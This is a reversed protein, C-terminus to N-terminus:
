EVKSIDVAVSQTTQLVVQDGVKVNELNQVEDSVNITSVKGDPGKLTATRNEVDIAEVTSTEEKIEVTVKRPKGDKSDVQVVRSEAVPPREADPSTVYVATSKLYTVRVKDGVKIDEIGKLDEAAEVVMENQGEYTLTFLREPLNIDKVTMVSTVESIDLVRSPKEAEPKMEVEDKKQCGFVVLLLILMLIIGMPKFIQM